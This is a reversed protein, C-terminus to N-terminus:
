EEEAMRNRVFWLYLFDVVSATSGNQQPNIPSVDYKIFRYLLVADVAALMRQLVM